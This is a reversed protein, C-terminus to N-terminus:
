LNYRAKLYSELVEIEWASMARNIVVVEFIRCTGYTAGARGVLTAAPPFATLAVAVSDLEVSNERYRFNLGDHYWHRLALADNGSYSLTATNYIASSHLMRFLPATGANSGYIGPGAASSTSVVLVHFPNKGVVGNISPGNAFETNTHDFEVAPFFGSTDYRPRRATTSQNYDHGCSGQDPWTAVNESVVNIEPNDSRLWLTCTTLGLTTPQFLSINWEDAVAAEVPDFLM